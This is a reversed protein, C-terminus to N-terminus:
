PTRALAPFEGPAKSRGHSPGRPGRGLARAAGGAGLAKRQEPPGRRLWPWGRGRGPGPFKPALALRGQATPWCGQRDRLARRGGGRAPGLPPWWWQVEVGAACTTQRRAPAGPSPRGVRSCRTARSASARTKSDAACVACPTWASHTFDAGGSSPTRAHQWPAAEQAQLAHVHVGLGQKRATRHSSSLVYAKNWLRAGPM